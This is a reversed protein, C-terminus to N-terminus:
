YRRNYEYEDDSVDIDDYFKDYKARNQLEVRSGYKNIMSEGINAASDVINRINDKTAVELSQLSKSNRIKSGIAGISDIAGRFDDAANPHQSIGTTVNRSTAENRQKKKRLYTKTLYNYCDKCLM